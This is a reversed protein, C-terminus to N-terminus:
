HRKAVAHDNWAEQRDASRRSRGPGAAAASGNRLPRAEGDALTLARASLAQYDTKGSRTVPIEGIQRVTLVGPPLGLRRRLGAVMDDHESLQGETFVVITEGAGRVAAARGASRFAVEIQDLAVRVGMAKVIRKARGTLFLYGDRLYGIDGTELKGGMVDGQALDARSRAYGLMVSPGSYFIAGREGDPLAAGAPDEIWLHGGPVVRGVAGPQRKCERPPLCTIRATAETQGYMVWFQGDRREMLEVFYRVLDDALPGGAQTLTTLAPFRSFDFRRGHLTEYIVPVGAFSTVDNRAVTRWFRASLVRDPTIVVSAGASLHSNLVSLGYCHSLPLSTIARDAPRIGLAAVIASANAELNARSLRVMVPSGTSGSTALLLALDAGIIEDGPASRRWVVSGGPLSGVPQYAGASPSLGEGDGPASVVFEPQYVETIWKHAERPLSGFFGCAHGLSLSTLYALVSDLSRDVLLAVLAKDPSELLRLPVGLMRGLARYTITKGGDTVLAAADTRTSEPLSLPLM